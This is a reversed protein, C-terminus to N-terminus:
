LQLLEQKKKEGVTNIKEIYEDTLDQVKKEAAFKEDESIEKEEFSKKVDRMAEGRVQRVMVRGSELKQSLLKVYKERDETTLPPFAIRLIQGDISPNMGVNAELIGKRIEGIISKDWPDIVITQADPTSTTALEQIRLKQVGGYVVVSLDEVLAPTARGTRISAIDKVILDVIDQMKKSTNADDM